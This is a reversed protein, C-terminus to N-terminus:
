NAKVEGRVQMNRYKRQGTGAPILQGLIVNEKLGRLYDTKGSVAALSLVKITEQFSAASIFSETSIAARTIGQIKPQGIAPKALRGEAPQKENKQMRQNEANFESLTVLQGEEFSTDGVATIVQKNYVSLNSEKFTLKDVLQQPILTTDGPSIVELKQAMQRLIVEIHKNNIPVGQQRYVKQVENLIYKQAAIPGKISCLDTISTVGACLPSGSKIYDGDQVLIHKSLSVLYKLKKGTKNEITIEQSGRKIKGYSVIGDIASITAANSPTRAEFLATIRPLGGTTIDSVRASQRPMKALIQGAHVKTGEEVALSAKLPMNYSLTQGNADTIIITPNKTKDKADIIVKEKHGTQEDYEEKYTVGLEISEFSVTGKTHALIVNNHPDWTCIPQNKEVEQQDKVLLSAGYPIHYSTNEKKTEPDLIQVEGAKSIVVNVKEGQANTIPVSQIDEFQVISKAPAKIGADTGVGSAVGGVHFTRLTLQTGPEAISQAAIVGAAEGIQAIRQTALNLGYCKSCVGYGTECTIVSRIQVSLIGAEEIKQAIKRTILQGKSVLLQHTKPHTISHLAVRGIIQEGLPEIVTDHEYTAKATIGRLTHCDEEEIIVSQAVDVLKRGLYGADATKVATDTLGKRAGHSSYVYEFVNLGEMFNSKIPIEIIDGVSQASKQPKAMLGRMLYIQRLQEKSGRAGSHMMMYVSNFGQQDEELDKILMDTMKRNVKTWIDIVQNYRETNTIFGMRYNNWVEDVEQDAKALLEEKQGPIKLDDVGVTLGGEHSQQFGLAKIDDLFEATRASGTKEHVEAIIQQVNKKTLLQNIFSLASPVCQNFIVRGVTTAIKQIVFDGNENKIPVRVKIKAHKDVEKNNLAIIVEEPSYFSMGEGKVKHEKTSPKEKTLYYLGLIMDKSPTAIPLGNGPNLINNSSLMLLMCEAKAEESIPVHVSMTDGDFDANFATCVLPHIQIAKGEILKPQFAQISLRHLTPARNLLVPHGKILKDLIDWIVTEKKEIVKKAERVTDAIGRDLLRNIIFPKFLEVAMEKPLGCEHLKLDPNPIIVTRGTFDNRKGLLNGRLLGKKGKLDDSLSKLPRDNDTTIASALRSNDFLANTREQLQRMENRLIIQPAGIEILRQLRNNCIILRRYLDTLDSMAFRGSNLRLLPRLEPSIVPIFRMTMWEPRNKPRSKRFAEVIHLRKIAEGRRQKSTDHMAQHRLQKALLDLDLSKLITSIAPGGTKAIFKDPHDDPLAQNQNPLNELINQYEKDNLIDMKQIGEKEMIGPQIVIHSTYYIISELKKSGIGLLYGIKNPAYRYCWVHVVEVALQIHGMRERRVKRENVEVGCRDCVNNKYKIGQYKKCACKYDDNPGFIRECLLGKPEPRYTRHNITEPETVEGHSRELIDEPSSLSITVKSIHNKAKRKIPDFM